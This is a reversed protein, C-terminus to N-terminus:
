GPWSRAASRRLQDEAARIRQVAEEQTIRSAQAKLLAHGQGVQTLVFLYQRRAPSDTGEREVTTALSEVLAQVHPDAAVINDRLQPAQANTRNAHRLLLGLSAVAQGGRESAQSATIAMASFPSERYPLVGDSALVSVAQLYTVLAQQMALSGTQGLDPEDLALSATSAWDRVPTYDPAGCGTLALLALLPLRM